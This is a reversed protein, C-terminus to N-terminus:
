ITMKKTLLIKRDMISVRKIVEAARPGAGGKYYPNVVTKCSDRFVDDFLGKQIAKVISQNDFEVDIVNEGRLRGEQRTGINITPCAFAPTEKIGSSSNGACVVRSGSRESLALLGHYLHIGLSKKLQFNAGFEGRLEELKEIIIQSGVDNNPYTAVVQVGDKIIKRLASICAEVQYSSEEPVTTISHLTFIVIPRDVDLNLSEKIEEAKAFDGQKVRDIVGFGINHVRWDEEGLRLVRNASDENTVFHLHALKTMAHRISDDLAGGETKDGGEFHITPINMQTSAVLAAFSEFRDAYVLFFDPRSRKLYESVKKITDAIALSTYCSTDESFEIPSNTVQEFLDVNIEKRTEGYKPQLHSGSVMLKVKFDELSSLHSLIPEFLGYEARNGTFACLEIM